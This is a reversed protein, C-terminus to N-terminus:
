RALFPFGTNTMLLQKFVLLCSYLPIDWSLSARSTRLWLHSLPHSSPFTYLSSKLVLLVPASTWRLTCKPEMRLVACGNTGICILPGSREPCTNRGGQGPIELGKRNPKMCRHFVQLLVEILNRSARYSRQALICYYLAPFPASNASYEDWAQSALEWGGSQLGQAVLAGRYDWCESASAPLSPNLLM